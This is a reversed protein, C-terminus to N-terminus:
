AALCLGFVFSAHKVRKLAKTLGDSIMENTPKYGLMIVVEEIHVLVKNPGLLSSRTKHRRSAFRFLKISHRQGKRHM